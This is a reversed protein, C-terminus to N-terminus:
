DVATRLTGCAPDAPGQAPGSNNQIPGSTRNPDTLSALEAVGAPLSNRLRGFGTMFGAAAAAPGAEHALTVDSGLNTKTV